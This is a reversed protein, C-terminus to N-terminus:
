IIYVIESFIAVATSLMTRINKKTCQRENLAILCENFIKDVTSNEVTKKKAVVKRLETEINSPM